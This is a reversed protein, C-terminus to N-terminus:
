KHLLYQLKKYSPLIRIGLKIRLFYVAMRIWKYNDRLNKKPTEIQAPENKEIQELLAKWKPVVKEPTFQEYFVTAAKSM